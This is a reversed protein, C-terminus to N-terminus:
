HKAHLMMRAMNADHFAWLMELRGGVEALRGWNRFGSSSGLLFRRCALLIAAIGGAIAIPFLLADRDVESGDIM